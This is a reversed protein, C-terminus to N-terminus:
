KSKHLVLSEDLEIFADGENCREEQPASSTIVFWDVM